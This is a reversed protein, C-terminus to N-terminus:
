FLGLNKGRQLNKSSKLIEFEKLDAETLEFMIKECSDISVKIKVKPHISRGFDISEVEIAKCKAFYISTSDTDDNSKMEFKTLQDLDSIFINEYYGALTISKLNKCFEITLNEAGGSLYEKKWVKLSPCRRVIFESDGDYSSYVEDPAGDLNTLKPCDEISFIGEMNAFKIMKGDDDKFDKLDGIIEIQRVGDSIDTKGKASKYNYFIKGNEDYEFYSPHLSNFNEDYCKVYKRLWRSTANSVSADKKIKKM